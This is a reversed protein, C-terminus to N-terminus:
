QEFLFGNERLKELVRRYTDDDPCFTTHLHIGGTLDSLPAADSQAVKSIFEDVDYRTAIDLQGVLQGYIPHEVIVDRVLCGNDVLIQLEEKMEEPMHRCPIRHIIGETGKFPGATVRVKEGPKFDFSEGVYEISAGDGYSSVLIFMEMQRDDIPAPKTGEAQRYLMLESFHDQKFALLEDLTWRVFLLSPALQVTRAVSRGNVTERTTKVAMYTRAGRAELEEKTRLIRNNFVRMAYWRPEPTTDTTTM